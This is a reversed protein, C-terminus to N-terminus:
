DDELVDMADLRKPRAIGLKKAILEFGLQNKFPEIKAELKKLLV